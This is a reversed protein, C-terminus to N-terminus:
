QWLKDQMNKHKNRILEIRENILAITSFATESDSDANKLTNESGFEKQGKTASQM